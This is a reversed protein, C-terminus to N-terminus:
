RLLVTNGMGRRKRQVLDKSELSDLTRSVTAKSFDTQDVVDSQALVGDADLITEYVARENEALREATQEWEQRRAELLDGSPEPDAVDSRESPSSDTRTPSSPQGGVLLYTGSSGLLCAAVTIVSVDPYRFYGGLEAVDTSSQGISVMIPSPNILQVALVLTSAVFTVAAFLNRTPLARVNM